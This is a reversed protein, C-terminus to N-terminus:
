DGKVFTKVSPRGADIASLMLFVRMPTAPMELNSSAVLVELLQEPSDCCHSRRASARMDNRKTGQSFIEKWVELGGPIALDGNTGWKLSTLLILLDANKPFVGYAAYSNAGASRYAGYLKALRSGEVLHAQQAQNLRMVVDFYAALWGHDKTLLHTVFEGPSNQNAGM